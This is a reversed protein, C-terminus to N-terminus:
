WPNPKHGVDWTHGLHNERVHRVYYHRSGELGCNQWQCTVTTDRGLDKIGHNKFHKSVIGCNIPEYCEAGDSTYLCHTFPCAAYQNQKAEKRTEAPPPIANAATREGVTNPGIMEPPCTCSGAPSAFTTPPQSTQLDTSLASLQAVLDVSKCSRDDPRPYRQSSRPVQTAM